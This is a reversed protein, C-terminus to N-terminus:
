RVEQELRILSQRQTETVSRSYTVVVAFIHIYRQKVICM